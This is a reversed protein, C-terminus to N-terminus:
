EKTEGYLEELSTRIGNLKVRLDTMSPNDERQQIKDIAVIKRDILRTLNMVVLNLIVIENDASCERCSFMDHHQCEKIRNKLNKISQLLNM